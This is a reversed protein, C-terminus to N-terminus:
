AAVFARAFRIKGDFLDCIESLLKGVGVDDMDVVIQGQGICLAAIMKIKFGKSGGVVFIHLALLLRKGVGGGMGFLRNQDDISIGVLFGFGAVCLNLGCLCVTQCYRNVPQVIKKGVQVLYGFVIYQATIGAEIGIGNGTFDM